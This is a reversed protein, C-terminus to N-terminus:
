RKYITALTRRQARSPDQEAKVRVQHICGKRKQLKMHNWNRQFKFVAGLM